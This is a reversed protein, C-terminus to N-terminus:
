WVHSQSRGHPKPLRQAASSRRGRLGFVFDLSEFPFLSSPFHDHFVPRGLQSPTNSLSAKAMVKKPEICM